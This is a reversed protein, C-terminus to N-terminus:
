CAEYDSCDSGCLIPVCLEENNITIKVNKITTNTSYRFTLQTNCPVYNLNSIEDCTFSFCPTQNCCGPTVCNAKNDGCGGGVTTPGGLIDDCNCNAEPPCSNDACCACTGSDCNTCTACECIPTDLLALVLHNKDSQCRPSLCANVGALPNCCPYCWKWTWPVNDLASYEPIGKPYYFGDNTSISAFKPYFTAFNIKQLGTEIEASPPNSIGYSFLAGDPPAGCFLVIEIISRLYEKKQQTTLSGNVLDVRWGPPLGTFINELNSEINGIEIDNNDYSSSSSRYNLLGGYVIGGNLYTLGSEYYFPDHLVKVTDFDINSCKGIRNDQPYESDITPKLFTQRTPPVHMPEYTITSRVETPASPARLLNMKSLNLIGAGNFNDIVFEISNTMQMVPRQKSCVSCDSPTSFQYDESIFNDTNPDKIHFRVKDWWVGGNAECQTQNTSSTDCIGENSDSAKKCCIGTFTPIEGCPFTQCPADKRFTQNDQSCNQRTVDNQCNFTGPVVETCCSGTEVEVTDGCTCACSIEGCQKNPGMFYTKIQGAITRNLCGTFTDSVCTSTGAAIDCVCCAGVVNTQDCCNVDACTGGTVSLGGLILECQVRTYRGLCVGDKCCVTQQSDCPDYCFRGQEKLEEESLEGPPNNTGTSNNYDSCTIGTWYQGGYAECLSISLGEVCAGGVCCVGGLGCTKDCALGPNFSGFLKDCESKTSYDRCEKTGDPNIFCCSGYLYGPICQRYVNTVNHGRHAVTALWTQGADYSLLGIINRGCSLYNESPEFYVNDPFKWVNDSDIFLTVSAIEGEIFTGTLGQIGIPTKIDFAGAVDCDLFIGLTTGTSFIPEGYLGSYQDQKVPGVTKIRAASNLHISTDSSAGANGDTFLFQFAGSYGIGQQINLDGGFVTTTNGLYLINGNQMSAANYNGPIDNGWYISDISIYENNPGTYSARLSGYASIGRFNFTGGSVNKFLTRGRSVDTGLGINEGLVLGVSKDNVTAGRFSGIIEATSGDSFNLLISNAFASYSTYYKGSPGTPGTTGTSGTPGIGGSPGLPGVPGTIGYARTSSISSSSM